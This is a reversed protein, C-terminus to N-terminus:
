TEVPASSSTPIAGKARAAAVQGLLPVPTTKVEPAGPEFPDETETDIATNTHGFAEVVDPDFQIGAYRHLEELAESTSLPIPRYPRAASMAE